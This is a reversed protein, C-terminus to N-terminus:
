EVYLFSNSALLMQCFDTWARDDADEQGPYQAPQKELFGRSVLLEDGTATRGLALLFARAVRAETTENAEGLVRAALAKARNRCFDSNLLSLSQLPVTTSDRRTCNFVISPADFVQLMNPIQTRRQQLYVSRRWAGESKEDVIVESANLRTTSVYPGGARRDLEGSAVLMADRIADADLRRLPYRWLLRNDPDVSLPPVRASHRTEDSENRVGFESSLSQNEPMQSSQRYAASQLILRHIPKERWGGRVFEDALWELLDPHSPPSGSYGLNDATSVIGTGFHYQWIRNVTVRALLAAAKSDARTLWRAFALRHGTTNHLQAATSQLEFPSDQESLVTLGAPEVKEGPANYEGRQLLYVDPPDPSVDSVWAIGGPNGTRQANVAKIAENRERRKAAVQQAYAKIAAPDVSPDSTEVAVNDVMFSRGCCFEFGFGGDPLDQEALTVSPEEAVGDVVHELRYNADGINTVRVGFNHGPAYGTEGITGASRADAGPYDVHVPAGGAPNGDLLINGGVEGRDNFDRLAIFYAIRAAPSGMDIRDAVLDFTAQIWKGEENPTWDFSKTTSVARDGAAGSEIIRLVGDSVAAGPATASGVGVAPTGAPADDGPATNSWAAVDEFTDEFVLAGHPRRERVWEAFRRKVDAAQEDLRAIKKEWDSIAAAPAAYVTRDKPYVWHDINLAPYLIAQLQYYERQEIPEFKHEHCRACQLKLGLLSSGIIQVTGELAKYKDTRREDPNGDSSDTGDQANRLFHTAELLEIVRPTVVGTPLRTEGDGSEHANPSATRVSTPRSGSSHFGELEALEDGALQERVFQDFPKDANHSRVVYDRYRWALPRDTDAGFYGNSDAYGATDLWYSGWREGYRPSDLYDDVMREYAGDEHDNLYRGIEDPSPPLGTLDFSVRRILTPRDAEPNFTLGSANLKALVFPDVLSKLRLTDSVRPSAPRHLRRFAWHDIDAVAADSLGPAGAEIWERILTREKPPLPVEPPMEEDAVRQWLLSQGVRGPVIVPGEKGGRAVGSLTMLRLGGEPRLPGHCKGCRDKLLTQVAAALEKRIPQEQDVDAACLLFPCFSVPCFAILLVLALWTASDPWHGLQRESCALDRLGKRVSVRSHSARGAPARLLAQGVTANADTSCHM